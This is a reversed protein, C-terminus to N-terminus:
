RFVVAPELVLVRRISVLSSLVVIFAVAIATMLAVQWPTHFGALATVDQTLEFFGASMGIGISYGLLGVISAQLLIMQVIRGNTVGMAKLNGFQKLNEITFLYFTQGAIATGVIFGLLVTIGFNIPIGTSKMYYTITHWAFQWTTLALRGTRKQIDRCLQNLDTQPKGKVLILPLINREPPAYHCAVSYRSFLVPFTQFPASAKCIGVIVARRDNIELTAGLKFPQDPFLYTYGAKDIMVADPQRLDSLKGLVMERPAGMLSNDDLGMLILQRHTGNSQRATVMGKYMGVAWEVGPVGRVANIETERLGRLEDVSKVNENMVWIDADAVDTIQSVTRRMLCVFISTQHAILLSGFAVGFIIGLYKTTDGTLMKWAVWNM